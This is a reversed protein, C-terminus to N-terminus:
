TAKLLNAVAGEHSLLISLTILILLGTSVPRMEPVYGLLAVILIAGLWKYFPDTGGSFESKLLSGASEINGTGLWDLYGILLGLGILFFAM